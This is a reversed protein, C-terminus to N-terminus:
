KYNGDKGGKMKKLCSKCLEGYTGCQIMEPFNSLWERCKNNEM